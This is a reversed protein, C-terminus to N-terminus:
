NGELATLRTTLDAILAQQEQIAATLTAVLFSTDVGQYKPKGEADVADKEGAVCDPVVAQLEHAIFGQGQLGDAKWTYTCPNLQAIKALAGTMPLVNEKLRYDSISLYSTTSATPCNIYGALNAGSNTRFYFQDGSSTTLNASFGAGATQSCIAGAVSLMGTQIVSGTGVLLNGSSDIRMAENTTSFALYNSANNTIGGAVISNKYAGQQLIKLTYGGAESSATNLEIAPVFQVYDKKASAANNASFTLTSISSTNVNTFLDLKSAPSSTGIGVNGGIQQLVLPQVAAANNVFASQIWAYYTGGSNFNGMNLSPGGTGEAFIVGTNLNGSSAPAGVTPYVQLKALPSSTGIGVNGSADKYVQGSGINVVGTGGTLTGTYALNTSSVAAASAGGIVAGDVTGGNIDTTTLVSSALTVVGTSNAISGAATGDKAKLNTAELNTTDVTTSNVTTLTFTDGSAGTQMDKLQAMLERIANNIGSPACGEAIDIGDIDTNDGPTASFESIKTRM